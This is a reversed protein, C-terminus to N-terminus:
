PLDTMDESFSFHSFEFPHLKKDANLIEHAHKACFLEGLEFIGVSVKSGCGEVACTLQRPLHRATAFAPSGTLSNLVKRRNEGLTNNQFNVKM